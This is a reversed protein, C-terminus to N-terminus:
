KYEFPQSLYTTSSSGIFLTFRGPEKMTVGNDIYYELMSENVEFHITKTEHANFYVKQYDKLEMVPRVVRGVHDRLFLLVTEYGPWDSDNLIDISVHLTQNKM